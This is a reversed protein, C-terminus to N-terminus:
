PSPRGWNKPNFRDLLKPVGAQNLTTYTGALGVARGLSSTVPETITSMGIPFLAKAKIKEKFTKIMHPILNVIGVTVLMMMSPTLIDGDGAIMPAVWFPAKTANILVNVCYVTYLMVATIVFAGCNGVLGRWWSDFSNQGPMANLVLILPSFIVSIVIQVYSSLLIFFLRFFSFILILSIILAILPSIYDFANITETVNGIFILGILSIVGGIAGFMMKLLSFGAIAQGTPATVVESGNLMTPLVFAWKFLKGVGGTTFDRVAVAGANNFYTFENGTWQNFTQEWTDSPKLLDIGSATMVSSVATVSAAIAVYMLDIIFAAIPLSLAILVMTVVLKPITNEIKAVTQPNVKNRFMIMFGIFFMIITLGMFALNRFLRWLPFIPQLRAYTIGQAYSKPIFGAQEGVYALYQATTAPPQAYMFLIGKNSIALLNNGTPGAQNEDLCYGGILPCVLGGIAADTSYKATIDLCKGDSENACSVWNDQLQGMNPSFLEPQAAHVSAAFFLFFATVVGFLVGRRM